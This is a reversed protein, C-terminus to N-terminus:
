KPLAIERSAFENTNPIKQSANASQPTDLGAQHRALRSSSLAREASPLELVPKTEVKRFNPNLGQKRSEM